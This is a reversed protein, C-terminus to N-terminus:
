KQQKTSISLNSDLKVTIEGNIQTDLVKSGSQRLRIIVEQNPLHYKNGKGSSILSIKPTIHQILNASNSTKSGHHAVKLIDIKPLQYRNLLLEENNITMDGTLLITKNKYKLLTVISHENKDDSEQIYTDLFELKGDKPYSSPEIIINKINIHNSLYPLEGMHDLHPHTIILYDITSIGKAKLSPLIKYKTINNNSKTHSDTLKGGTDIMINLNYETHFLISDGQGGDLMTLETESPRSTYIIIIISLFIISVSTLINRKVFLFLSIFVSIILFVIAFTNLEPVFIRIYKLSLFLSLFLDHIRYSYNIVTNLILLHTTFHSLFFFIIALPFIILSYLPVFILNSVLGIWQIQNFYYVTIVSAGLQAIITVSMLLKLGTLEKLLPTSIILFFSIFFSFQFGIDFVILPNIFYMLIFIFSLIDLPKSKFQRPLILLIIGVLISRVASPAFDTYFAYLPLILLLLLKILLYPTNLRVFASHVLYIIAAVHSGSVALLHYIGIEKVDDIFSQNLTSTDGTILALLRDHYVNKTKSMQNQIYSQHKAIPNIKKNQTCSNLDIQKIFIIPQNSNLLQLDGNIACRYNDINLRNYDGQHRYYFKVNHDHWELLGKYINSEKNLKIFTVAENIHKSNKINQMEQKHKTLALNLMLVSLLVSICVLFLYQKIVNKRILLFM